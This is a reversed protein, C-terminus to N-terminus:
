CRDQAPPRQTRKLLPTSRRVGKFGRARTTMSCPPAAGRGGSGGSAQALSDRQARLKYRYATSRRARQGGAGEIGKTRRATPKGLLSARVLSGDGFKSTIADRLRDAPSTPGGFLDLQEHSGFGSAHIGLLRVRKAGHVGQFLRWAVRFLIDGSATPAALTEARTQTRFTEDRYKLTVTRARLGHSRLRAALKSLEEASLERQLFGVYDLKSSVTEPVDLGTLPNYFANPDAL